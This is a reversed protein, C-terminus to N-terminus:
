DIHLLRSKDEPYSMVAAVTAELPLAAEAIAASVRKSAVEAKARETVPLLVMIRSPPDTAVLDIHRVKSAIVWELRKRLLEAKEEDQEGVSLELLLVAFPHGYRQFKEVEELIRTKMQALPMCNPFPSRSSGPYLIDELRDRIKEQRATSAAVERDSALLSEMLDKQDALLRDRESVVEGMRRRLLNVSRGERWVRTLADVVAEDSSELPLFRRIQAENVSTILHEIRPASGIAVFEAGTYLGRLAVIVSEGRESTLGVDVVCIDPQYADGFDRAFSLGSAERVDFGGALANKWRAREPGDKAVLLLEPRYAESM